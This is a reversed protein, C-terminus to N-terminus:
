KTARFAPSLSCYWGTGTHASCSIGRVLHSKTLTHTIFLACLAVLWQYLSPNTLKSFAFLWLYWTMWIVPNLRWAHSLVRWRLGRTATFSCTHLRIYILTCAKHQMGVRFNKFRSNHKHFCIKRLLSSPLM